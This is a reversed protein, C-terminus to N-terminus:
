EADSWLRVYEGDPDYNAMQKQTNFRRNSRPDTGCGALYLWNGQNSYVDYDILQAEFWAAGARWDCQVDHILFSAVNQRMRNSLYGTASLERMAADIFPKGTKGECWLNFRQPHHTIVANPNLGKAHYLQKGYRLHLFRFYDRWLLEFGIWYTSENAGVQAEHALVADNIQRASLAGSALWPSFKTSYDTGILGNRTEKYTDALGAAIYRQLHAIAAHAGGRWQVNQYPFASRPDQEIHGAWQNLDCRTLDDSSSPPPPLHVLGLATPAQLHAKELQQRFPTFITPLQKPHFPLKKPDHLSSQWITTVTFGAKRIAEVQAIEEPAEISECYLEQIGHAQMLAPLVTEPLGEILHLTNGQRECQSVLDKLTDALFVKRHQGVRPFGWETIEDPAICYVLLLADSQQCALQLAANDTLRLDNRFWYLATKM